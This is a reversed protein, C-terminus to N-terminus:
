LSAPIDFTRTGALRTDMGPCFLFRNIQSPRYATVLSGFKHDMPLISNDLLFVGM